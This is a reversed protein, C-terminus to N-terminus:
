LPSGPQQRRSTKTKNSADVPFLFFFDPSFVFFFMKNVLNKLMIETADELLDLQQITFLLWTQNTFQEQPVSCIKDIERSLM